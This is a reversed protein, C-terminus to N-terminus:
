LLLNCVRKRCLILRISRLHCIESRHAVLKLLQILSGKRRSEFSLCRSERTCPWHARGCRRRIWLDRCARGTSIRGISIDDCRCRSLVRTFSRGCRWRRGLGRRLRCRYRWRRGRGRYLRSSGGRRRYCSCWNERAHRINRRRLRHMQWWRLPM